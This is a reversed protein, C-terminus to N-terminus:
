GKTLHWGSSYPCRYVSLQLQKEKSLTAIQEKASVESDYLDKIEGHSDRCTCVEKKQVTLDVQLEQSKKIQEMHGNLEHLSQVNFYKLIQDESLHALHPHSKQLHKLIEENKVLESKITQLSKKLHMM